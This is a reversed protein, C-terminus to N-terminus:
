EGFKYNFYEIDKEYKEAVIQRTEDDYYETYHKHNTKNTHPLQQQPIGIKDCITNFDEQLNEFRGIFDVIMENQESVIWFHQGMEHSYIENLNSAYSKLYESFNMTYIKKMLERKRPHGWGTRSAWEYARKWWLFSSVVIDWPNRVFCFKFYNEIYNNKLFKCPQHKISITSDKRYFNSVHGHQNFGNNSLCNRISSGATKPIHIFIAKSDHSYM